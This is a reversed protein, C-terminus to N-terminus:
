GLITEPVREGVGQVVAKEYVYRAVAVDEIAVGLSEFLTISDAEGRGQVSGAVVQGLEVVDDWDFM